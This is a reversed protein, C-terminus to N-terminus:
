RQCNTNKNEIDLFVTRAIQLSPVGWSLMSMTVSNMSSEIDKM